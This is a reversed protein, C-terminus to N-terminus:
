RPSSSLASAIRHIDKVVQELIAVAAEAIKRQPEHDGFERGIAERIVEFHKDM